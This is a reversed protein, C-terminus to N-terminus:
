NENLCDENAKLLENHVKKDTDAKWRMLAMRLYRKYKQDMLLNIRKCVHSHYVCYNKWIKLGRYMHDCHRLYCNRLVQLKTRSNSNKVICDRRYELENREPLKEKLVDRTSEYRVLLNGYRIADFCKRLLREIRM